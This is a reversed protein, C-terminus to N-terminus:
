RAETALALADELGALEMIGQLEAPPNEMAIRKGAAQATRMWSLLLAAIASNCHSVGALDLRCEAPAQERLWSSGRKELAMVNTFDIGGFLLIRDQETELRAPDM